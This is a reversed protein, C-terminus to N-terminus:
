FEKNFIILKAYEEDITRDVEITDGEVRIINDEDFYDVFDDIKELDFQLNETKYHMPIVVDPMLLDVYEFAKEANITFKGGIPIMLVNVNGIAEALEPSCDEGIDGMHCVDVGDIRFKFILNKGRKKGNENDHFSQVSSIHIGNIEFAGLTNILQFKGSIADKYSHDKHNHSITVADCKIKEMDFGVYPHYPDTVVTTGTSETLKFASHGLWQIKM